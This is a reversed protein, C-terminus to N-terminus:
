RYTTTKIIIEDSESELESEAAEAVPETAALDDRDHSGNGNGKGNGNAVFKSIVATDEVVAEDLSVKMEEAATPVSEDPQTAGNKQKRARTRKRDFLKIPAAENDPAVEAAAAAAPEAPVELQTAVAALEAQYSFELAPQPAPVERVSPATVQRFSRSGRELYREAPPEVRERISISLESQESGCYPCVPWGNKVLQNCSACAHKLSAQCHPCLIYEDSVQRQCSSCLSTEEIDQLLYEEELSRQFAEDLTTRPRMLMYLLTGPIFFLLSLLTAFVQTVVSNSRSGIDRYTWVVLAFWLVILYGGALALFVQVARALIEEM